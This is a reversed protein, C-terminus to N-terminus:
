KAELVEIRKVLEAIAAFALASLKEYDVALTGDPRTRVAQPFVTQVDQAIVGFDAKQIFYGDEGGHEAIYADTWDFYKGGIANVKKAADDIVRVNEKFKADSSYYATINDTARIEGTTGSAPTGVGFSDVQYDNGTVLLSATGTLTATITGASFNGSADRAVITSAGNASAATTRANDLTGSSVATANLSTINAGSFTASNSGTGGNAVPLVGTVNSQLNAYTTSTSGTGGSAIPLASGLTLSTLHTVADLVNTGNNYVYMTKGAPVAIGTGGTNKVTITQTLGNNVIYVKEIAPVILNQPAGVAGTLNLRLNRASQSSNTDTLTLTVDASSFNVDASGVIAEELATGLNVNTVNGWTGSNEGTAMLQIKLASYTSAM